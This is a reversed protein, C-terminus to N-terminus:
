SLIKPLAALCQYLYGGSRSLRIATKKAAATRGTLLAGLAALALGLGKLAHLLPRILCYALRSARSRTADVAIELVRSRASDFSHRCAYGFNMRSLPFQHLVEADPAFWVELGGHHLRKLMETEGGSLLSKGKRDLDHRFLGFKEFVDRRFAVNAGMPMQRPTLPGAPFTLPTAWDALWAPCGEPFVPTVAGGVAGIREGAPGAWPALLADLWGPQLLVDDDLFVVIRGRAEAVARNRGHDLGQEPEVLYRWGENAAVFPTAVERTADTSKNDIVLVEVPGAAHVHAALSALTERLLGCRNYTPIALTASYSTENM